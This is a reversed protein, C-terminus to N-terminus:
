PAAIVQTPNVMKTSNGRGSLKGAGTVITTCAAGGGAHGARIAGAPIVQVAEIGCIQQYGVEGKVGHAEARM